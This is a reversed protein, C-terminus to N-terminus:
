ITYGVVVVACTGGTPTGTAAAYIDTDAALLVGPTVVISTSAATAVETGTATTGVSLAPSTGGTFGNKRHVALILTNKPFRGLLVGTAADPQTADIVAGLCTPSYGDTQVPITSAM